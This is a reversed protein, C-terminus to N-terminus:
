KKHYITCDITMDVDSTNQVNAECNIKKKIKTEISKEDTNIKLLLM